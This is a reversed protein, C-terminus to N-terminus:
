NNHRHVCPSTQLFLSPTSVKRMLVHEDDGPGWIIRNQWVIQFEPRDSDDCSTNHNTDKAVIIVKRNNSWASRLVQLVSFSLLPSQDLFAVTCHAAAPLLYNQKSVVTTQRNESFSPYVQYDKSLSSYIRRFVPCSSLEDRQCAIYIRIGIELAKFSSCCNRM